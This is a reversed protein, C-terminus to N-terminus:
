DEFVYNGPAAYLPPFAKAGLSKPAAKETTDRERLWAVYDPWWSGQETTAGALWDAADPPNDDNIRFRAKQNTPPNVLSAIHGSTSLVFRNSGGLLQTSRYCSQWPSIHDAIGAVIYSDVDLASLDVPEGFLKGMGPTALSGAIAADLFDAHLGASMRTTDANWYLIDFAPPTKGQLYNSVWYNWILDSPRLWAFIEALAKGDLYGKSRSTAKATKALRDDIAAEMLGVGAPALVTVGLSLSALQDTKGAAALQGGLTSTLIGGSCFAIVHTTKSRAIRTAADMADLIAQGYTDFGWDAHEASPNRWSMAFVQQGSAVLYEVLSRGPALDLIYYKNITPPVVLLPTSRVKATTPKYQILEFVDTRLVIVGPTIALNKGVDFADPDVMTPVRPKSKMDSVLNKTGTVISAGRTERVTKLVSPNILPNNSPSTAEIVNDLIFRLKESDKWSLDLEDFTERAAASLALYSQLFRKRARSDTWGPDTFRKDRGAELTSSGLMIKTFEGALSLGRPALRVSQSLLRGTARVGAMGPIWRRWMGLAADSLLMDLAAANNAAAEAPDDNPADDAATSM